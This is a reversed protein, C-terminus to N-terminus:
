AGSIDPMYGPMPGTRFFELVEVDQGTGTQAWIEGPVNRDFDHGEEVGFSTHITAVSSADPGIQVPNATRVVIVVRIRRPNDDVLRVPVGVGLTYRRALWAGPQEEAVIVPLEIPTPTREGWTMQNWTSATDPMFTAAGVGEAGSFPLLDAGETPEPDPVDDLGQSRDTVVGFFRQVRDVVTPQTLDPTDDPHPM